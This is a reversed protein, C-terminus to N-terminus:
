WDTYLFSFEKINKTMLIIPVGTALFIFILVLNFIIGCKPNCEFTYSELEQRLIKNGRKIIENKKISNSKMSQSKISYSNIKSTRSNGKSSLNSIVKLESM